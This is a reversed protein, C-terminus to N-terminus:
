MSAQRRGSRPGLRLGGGRAAGVPGVSADAFGGRRPEAAAADDQQLPAALALSWIHDARQGGRQSGSRPMPPLSGAPPLTQGKSLRATFCGVESLVAEVLRFKDIIIRGDERRSAMAEEMVFLDRLHIGAM